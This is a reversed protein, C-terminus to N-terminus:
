NRFGLALPWPSRSYSPSGDFNRVFTDNQSHFPLFFFTKKKENKASGRKARIFLLLQPVSRFLTVRTFTHTLSFSLLQQECRSEVRGKEKICDKICRELGGKEMFLGKLLLSSLTHTHTHIQFHTVLSTWDAGFVCGRIVQHGKVLDDMCTTKFYCLQIRNNWRILPM